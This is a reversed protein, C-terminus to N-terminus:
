RGDPCALGELNASIPHPSTAACLFWTEEVLPVLTDRGELVETARAEELVLVGDGALTEGHVKPMM